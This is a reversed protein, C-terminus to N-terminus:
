SKAHHPTNNHRALFWITILAFIAWEISAARMYQSWSATSLYMGFTPHSAALMDHYATIRAERGPRLLFVIVDLCEFLLYYIAFRLNQETRRLLGDGLFLQVATYTARVVLASWGVLLSGFAMMVPPSQRVGQWLSWIGFAANIVFYWGVVSFKFPRSRITASNGFLEKITSSRFLYAL